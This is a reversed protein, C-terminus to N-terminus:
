SAVGEEALLKMYRDREDINIVSRINFFRSGYKIRTKATVSSNYRIFIEHTVRDQVVGQQFVEKGNTPKIRAHITESDAFNASIGGGTDKTSALTQITISERLQGIM